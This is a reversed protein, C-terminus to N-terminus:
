QYPAGCEPCELISAYGHHCDGATSPKLAACIDAELSELEEPSDQEFSLASSDVVRRLLGELVDVREDATTLRQQLADREATVRDHDPGLVVNIRGLGGCGEALEGTFLHYRKVENM